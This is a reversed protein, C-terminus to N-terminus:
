SRTIQLQQQMTVRAPANPAILVKQIDDGFYKAQVLQVLETQPLKLLKDAAIKTGASIYEIMQERSMSELRKLEKTYEIQLIMEIDATFVNSMDWNQVVDGIRERNHATFMYKGTASPVFEGSEIRGEGLFMIAHFKTKAGRFRPVIMISGPNVHALSFNHKAFEAIAADRKAADTANTIGNRRLYQELAANYATDSEFARGEKIAGAYEPKSYKNRMQDKFAICTSKGGDPIVALTDGNDNLARMLQTYQGYMCHSGVTAGPLEQRVATNYGSTGITKNLRKQAALMNDIYKECTNIARTALRYKVMVKKLMGTHLVIDTPMKQSIQMVKKPADHEPLKLVQANASNHGIAAASGMLVYPVVKKYLKM